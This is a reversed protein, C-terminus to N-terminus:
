VLSFTEISHLTQVNKGITTFVLTPKDKLIISTLKCSNIIKQRFLKEKNYGLNRVLFCFKIM